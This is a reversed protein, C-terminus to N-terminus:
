SKRKKIYKEADSMPDIECVKTFFRQRIGTRAQNRIAVPPRPEDSLLKV